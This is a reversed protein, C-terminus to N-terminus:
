NGLPKFTCGVSLSSSTNDPAHMTIQTCNSAPMPSSTLVEDPIQAIHHELDYPLQADILGEHAQIKAKIARAGPLLHEACRDSVCSNYLALTRDTIAYWLIPVDYCILMRNQCYAMYLAAIFADKMCNLIATERAINNENAFIDLNWNRMFLPLGTLIEYFARMTRGNGDFSPHISILYQYQKFIPLHTEALVRVSLYRLFEKNLSDVESPNDWQLNKLKEEFLSRYDGMYAVFAEKKCLETYNKIHPYGYRMLFKAKGSACGANSFGSIDQMHWPILFPNALLANVDQQTGRFCYHGGMSFKSDQKVGRQNLTGLITNQLEHSVEGADYLLEANMPRAASIGFSDPIQMYGAVVHGNTNLVKYELTSDVSKLYIKGACLETDVPLHEMLIFEYSPLGHGDYDVAGGASIDSGRAGKTSFNKNLDMLLDFLLGAREIGIRHAIDRQYREKGCKIIRAWREQPIDTRGYRHWPEHSLGLQKKDSFIGKFKQASHRYSEQAAVVFIHLLHHYDVGSELTRFLNLLFSADGPRLQGLMKVQADRVALERRALYMQTPEEVFEPRAVWNDQSAFTAPMGNIWYELEGPKLTRVTFSNCNIFNYEHRLGVSHCLVSFGDQQLRIVGKQKPNLESFGQIGEGLAELIDDHSIDLGSLILPKELDNDEHIHYLATLDLLRCNVSAEIAVLHRGYDQWEFPNKSAYFGGGMTSNIKYKEYMYASSLTAGGMMQINDYTWHLYMDGMPLYVYNNSILQYAALIKARKEDTLM